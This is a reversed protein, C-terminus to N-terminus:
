FLFIPNVGAPSCEESHDFNVRPLLSKNLVPTSTLIVIKQSKLFKETFFQRKEWFVINHDFFNWLKAKNRQNKQSFRKLIIVDTGPRLYTRLSNNRNFRRPSSWPQWIAYKWVLFGFKPLKQLTKCHLANTYKVCMQHIKCGNPISLTCKTTHLKTYKEGNQYKTGLFIQCGQVWNSKCVFNDAIFFSLSPIRKSV